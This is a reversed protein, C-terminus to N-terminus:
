VSSDIKERICFYNLLSFSYKYIYYFKNQHFSVHIDRYIKMNERHFKIEM